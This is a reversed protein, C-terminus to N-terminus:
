KNPNFTIPINYKVRVKRGNQVGPKWGNLLGIVRVAEKDINRSVSQTVKINIIKGLTDITFDAKVVGGIKQKYDEKPYKINKEILRYFNEMGGPFEPPIEFVQLRLVSDLEKNVVQGYSTNILYLFLFILFGFRPM